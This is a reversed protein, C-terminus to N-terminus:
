HHKTEDQVCSFSSMTERKCHSANGFTKRQAQKKEFGIQVM